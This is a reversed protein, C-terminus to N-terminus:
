EGWKGLIPYYDGETTRWIMFHYVVGVSYWPGRDIRFEINSPLVKLVNDPVTEPIFFVFGDINIFYATNKPAQINDDFIRDISIFYEDNSLGSQFFNLVYYDDRDDFYDRETKTLDSLTKTLASDVFEIQRLNLSVPRISEIYCASIFTILAFLIVKSM